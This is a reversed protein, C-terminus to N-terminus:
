EFKNQLVQLVLDSRAGGGAGVLVAVPRCKLHIKLGPDWRLDDKSIPIGLM